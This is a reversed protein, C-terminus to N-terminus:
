SLGKCHVAVAGDTGESIALFRRVINDSPTSGDIFFLDRHDFGADNFKKADYMRKNLRVVSTVKHARFYPFYYDPAHLPYGNEICSKQHPGAFALFKGTLPLSPTLSHTITHIHTVTFSLPLSPPTLPHTITHIHTVTFSLPLPPSPPTHTHSPSLSFPSSLLSPLSVSLVVYLCVCQKLFLVIVPQEWLSAYTHKRTLMHVLTDACTYRCTHFANLIGGTFCSTCRSYMYFVHM